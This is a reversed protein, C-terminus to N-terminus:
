IFSLFIIVTKTSNNTQSQMCVVLEDQLQKLKLIQGLSLQKQHEWHNSWGIYNGIGLGVVTFVSLILILNLKGNLGINPTHVYARPGSNLELELERYNLSSADSLDENIFDPNLHPQLLYQDRLYSLNSMQSVVSSSCLSATSLEDDSSDDDEYIVDIDSSTSDPVLLEDVRVVSEAEESEIDEGFKDVYIDDETRFLEEEDYSKQFYLNFTIRQSSDTISFGTGYKYSGRRWPIRRFGNWEDFGSDFLSNLFCDIFWNLLVEFDDDFSDNSTNRSMENM